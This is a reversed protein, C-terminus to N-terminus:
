PVGDKGPDWPDADMATWPDNEEEPQTQATWEIGGFPDYEDPVAEEQSLPLTTGSYEPVSLGAFFRVRLYTNGIQLVSGHLAHAPRTLPSGDLFIGGRCLPELLLGKGDNFSFNIMRRKRNLVSLRIDASRACGITGERPLPFIQDTDMDVMEGVRGADPFRRLESRYYRQDKRLWRFSRLLILVGLLLFVYRMLLSIIEYTGAEM